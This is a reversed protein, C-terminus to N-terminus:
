GMGTGGNLGSIPVSVRENSKPATQALLKLWAIYVYGMNWGRPAYAMDSHTNTNTHTLTHTHTRARARAYANPGRM